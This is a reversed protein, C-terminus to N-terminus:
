EFYKERNKDIRENYKEIKKILIRYAEESWFKEDLKKIVEMQEQCLKDFEADLDKKDM